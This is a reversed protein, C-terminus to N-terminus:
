VGWGPVGVWRSLFVIGGGGSVQDHPVTERRASSTRFEIGHSGLPVERKSARVEFDRLEEEAATPPRVTPPITRTRGLGYM